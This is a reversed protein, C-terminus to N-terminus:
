PGCKGTNPSFLSLYETDRWMWGSHPFIHVVIVGYVPVKQATDTEFNSKLQLNQAQLTWNKLNYISNISRM